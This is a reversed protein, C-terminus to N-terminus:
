ARLAFLPWRGPVGRLEHSGRDEFSFPGGVVTGGVTGSVLVEGPRALHSVRSAIHIAMGAVDDGVLECEGTHMGIRVDLDLDRLAAVIAAACRLAQSPPGPFTALVSDGITKVEQGGFRGLQQRVVHYHGALLDRWRGDGLAGARATAEVIDTFMVTLLTRQREPGSRRGTLFEETEGVVADADGFWPFSDEGPLPLFRAGPIHEALYLSHRMDWVRDDRRHMVLTPVRVRPLLGRVDLDNTALSLERATGPSAALRELRAMWEHHAPDDTASPAFQVRLDTRESAEGWTAVMEESSARRQEITPAWDYGPAWTTRAVSAYLVLARVRDPHDVALAVATPGSIAYALVAVRESGVADLVILADEVQDDLTAPRAVRDSLGVGRRDFMIFRAFGALREIFRSLGPSDWAHEVQFFWGPLMLLDLPGEGLVQYAISAEGGHTYRTRAPM